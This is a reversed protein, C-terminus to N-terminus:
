NRYAYLQNKTEGLFIIMSSLASIVIYCAVMVKYNILNREYRLKPYDRQISILLKPIFFKFLFQTMMGLLMDTKRDQPNLRSLSSIYLFQYSKEARINNLKSNTASSILFIYKMSSSFVNFASYNAALWTHIPYISGTPLLPFVVFAINLFSQYVDGSM